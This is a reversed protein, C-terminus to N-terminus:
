MKLQRATNDLKQKAWGISQSQSMSSFHKNHYHIEFHSLPSVILHFNRHKKMSFVFHTLDWVKNSHRACGDMRDIFAHVVAFTDISTWATALLSNYITVAQPIANWATGRIVDRLSDHDM